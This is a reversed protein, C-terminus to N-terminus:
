FPIDDEMDALGGQVPVAKTAVAPAEASPKSGLMQMTEARLEWSYQKVGDKDWERCRMKGVLMVSAGKRLYKGCIEALKKYAMVRYWTTHEKKEGEKTWTETVAVSLNAVADGSAMYSLEPDKGLHGVVITQHFNSM